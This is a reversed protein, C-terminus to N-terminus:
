HGTDIGTDLVAVVVGAGTRATADAGVASIGWATTTAAEAEAVDIPEILRTPMVPAVARVQPDRTLMRVDEKSLEAVEVRPESPVAVETRAEAVAEFPGATIPRGLDRLVTYTRM